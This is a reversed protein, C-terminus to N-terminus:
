THDAQEFAAGSSATPHGAPRDPKIYDDLWSSLRSGDRQIMAVLGANEAAQKIAADVRDFAVAEADWLMTEFQEYNGEFSDFEMSCFAYEAASCAYDYDEQLSVLYQYSEQLEPFIIM